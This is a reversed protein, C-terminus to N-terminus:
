ASKVQRIQRSEWKNGFVKGGKTPNGTAGKSPGDTRVPAGKGVPPVKGKTDKKM